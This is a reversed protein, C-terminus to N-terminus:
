ITMQANVHEPPVIATELVKRGAKLQMKIM